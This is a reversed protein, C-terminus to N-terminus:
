PTAGIAKDIAARARDFALRCLALRENWAKGQDKEWAEANDEAEDWEIM